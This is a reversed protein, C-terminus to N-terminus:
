YLELTKLHQLCRQAQLLPLPLDPDQFHKKTEYLLM